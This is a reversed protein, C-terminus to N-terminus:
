GHFSNRTTKGRAIFHPNEINKKGYILDNGNTDKINGGAYNLIAHAAATDWESTAGLRPYIDAKGEAIRCIKISSTLKLISSINYNQLLQSTAGKGNPIFSLTAIINNKPMNRVFIQKNNKFAGLPSGIYLEDELPNFVIGFLPKGNVILGANMTFINNKAVFARTGDIPDILWFTNHPTYSKKQYTEEGVCPIHPTINRLANIISQEANKDAITVPTNNEKYETEFDSHYINMIDVAVNRFLNEMATALEKFDITNQVVM